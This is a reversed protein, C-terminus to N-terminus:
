TTPSVIDVGPPVKIGLMTLFGVIMIISWCSYFITVLLIGRNMMTASLKNHDGDVTQTLAALVSCARCPQCV